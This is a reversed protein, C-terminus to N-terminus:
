IPLWVAHGLRKRFFSVYDLVNFSEQVTERVAFRLFPIEKMGNRVLELCSARMTAKITQHFPELAGQGGPHYSSGQHKVALM